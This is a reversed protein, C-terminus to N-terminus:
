RNWFSQPSATRWRCFPMPSARLWGSPSALFTLLGNFELIPGHHHCVTLYRPKPFGTSGSTHVIVMPKNKYKQWERDDTYQRPEPSDDSLFYDFSPVEFRRMDRDGVIAAGPFEKSHLLITAGTKDFLHHHMQLSNRPASSLLIFGLKNLAFLLFVPRVDMTAAIYAVPDQGNGRGIKPELWECWRDVARAVQKFTIDRWGKPLDFDDIPVAGWPRDPTERAIRDVRAAPLEDYTKTLGSFSM